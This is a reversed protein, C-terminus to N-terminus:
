LRVEVGLIGDSVAASLELRMTGSITMTDGIVPFGPSDLYVRDVIEGDHSIRITYALSGEGGVELSYGAPVSLTMTRGDGIGGYYCDTMADSLEEAVSHVEMERVDERTNDTMSIVTPLMLGIIMFSIALKLPLSM